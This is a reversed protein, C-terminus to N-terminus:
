FFALFTLIRPWRVEDYDDFDPFDRGVGMGMLMVGYTNDFESQAVLTGTFVNNNNNDNNDNNNNQFLNYFFYNKKQFGM